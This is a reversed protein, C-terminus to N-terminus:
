SRGAVVRDMGAADPFGTMSQYDHRRLLELVGQRQDHGHELLLWGGPRLAVRADRVIRRVDDLGDAGSILARRPEFAVDGRQLHPDSDAIYPPNSLIM